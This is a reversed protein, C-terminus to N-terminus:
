EVEFYILDTKKYSIYDSSVQEKLINKMPRFVKLDGWFM